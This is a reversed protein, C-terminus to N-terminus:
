RVALPNIAFSPAASILSRDFTWLTKCDALQATAFHLADPVGLAHVARIHTALEFARTTIELRRFRDLFGQAAGVGEGSRLPRVMCELNVLPSIALTESNEVDALRRRTRLGRESSVSMADILISSDLYILGM